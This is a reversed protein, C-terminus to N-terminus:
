FYVMRLTSRLIEPHVNRSTEKVRKKEKRKWPDPSTVQVSLRHGKRHSAAVQGTVLSCLLGSVLKDAAVTESTVPDVYKSPSDPSQQLNGHLTGSAESM